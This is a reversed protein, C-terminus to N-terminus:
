EVFGTEKMNLYAATLTEEMTLNYQFDQEVIAYEIGLEQAKKLCDAMKLLGTGPTSFRPFIVDGYPRKQIVEGEVYDKIHIDCIRSGLSDLVQLPDAGAFQAWGCDLEFMLNDTNSALFYLAPVGRISYLFESNHNHFAFKIGEKKLETAIYEYEEAERMANDYDPVEKSRKLHYSGVLGVFTTVRKVGISNASKVMSAIDPKEGAKPFYSISLPEMGFSNVRKLNESPDGKLIIQGFEFGSYGIKAYSKLIEYPDKEDFAMFGIFGAKLKKM